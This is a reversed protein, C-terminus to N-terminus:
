SLINPLENLNFVGDMMKGGLPLKSERLHKELNAHSARELFLIDKWDAPNRKLQSASHFQSIFFFM